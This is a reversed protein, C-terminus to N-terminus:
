KRTKPEAADWRRHCPQCLWRVDLPKSYDAHAGEIPGAESCEDCRDPRVIHGRDIHYKLTNQARRAAGYREKREPSVARQRSKETLSEQNAARYTTVARRNLARYLDPNRAYTRRNIDNAKSPDAQRREALAASECPKCTRKQPRFPGDGGCRKCTGDWAPWRSGAM